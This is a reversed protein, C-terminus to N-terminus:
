HLADPSLKTSRALKCVAISIFGFIAYNVTWCVFLLRKVQFSHLQLSAYLYKSFDAILRTQITRVAKQRTLITTTVTVPTKLTTMIIRMMGDFDETDSLNTFFTTLTLQHHKTVHNSYKLSTECTIYCTISNLVTCFSTTHFFIIYMVSVHGLVPIFHM